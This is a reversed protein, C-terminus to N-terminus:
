ADSCEVREGLPTGTMIRMLADEDILDDPVSARFEDMLEEARRSDSDALAAYVEAAIALWKAHQALQVSMAQADGRRKEAYACARPFLLAAFMGVRRSVRSMTMVPTVRGLGPTVRGLGPTVRGLGPTVCVASVRM